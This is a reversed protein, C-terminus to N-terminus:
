AELVERRDAILGAESPAGAEALPVSNLFDLLLARSGPPLAAYLRLLRQADPLARFYEYESTPADGEEPEELVATLESVTTSLAHAIQVLRSFSVRNSGNEYKQLQQFSVGCARALQEQTLGMAKRRARIGRALAHDADLPSRRNVYM